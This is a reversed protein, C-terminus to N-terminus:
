LNVEYMHYQCEHMGLKEYVGQARTNEKEVYLRITSIGAQGARKKIEEYLRKYIGQGRYDEHVYVSQIWWITNNRWDSWEYTIMLQGVIKEGELAIIYFGKDPDELIARVGPCIISDDLRREETEWAMKQNFETITETDQPTANRIEIM